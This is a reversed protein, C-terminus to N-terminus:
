APIAHLVVRNSYDLDLRIDQPDEAARLVRRDTEDLYFGPDVGTGDQNFWTTSLPYQTTPIESIYWNSSQHSTARYYEIPKGNDGNPNSEPDYAFLITHRGGGGMNENGDTWDRTVIPATVDNLANRAKITVPYAPFIPTTVSFVVRSSETANVPVLLVGNNIDFTLDGIVNGLNYDSVRIYFNHTQPQGSQRPRLAETRSPDFKKVPAKLPLKRAIREGNSLDNLSRVLPLGENRSAPLAEPEPQPLASVFNSLLFICTIIFQTFFM